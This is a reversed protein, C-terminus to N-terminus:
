LLGGGAVVRVPNVKITMLSDFSEVDDCKKCQDNSRKLYLM